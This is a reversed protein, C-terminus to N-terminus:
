GEMGCLFKYAENKTLGGGALRKIGGHVNAVEDIAIGIGDQYLRVAGVTNWSAEKFGRKENIQNILGRVDNISAKM